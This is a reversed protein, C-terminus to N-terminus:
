NGVKKQLWEWGATAGDKAGRWTSQAAGQAAHIGRGTLDRAGSWVAQAGHEVSHATDVVGDRLSTGTQEVAKWGARATSQAGKGIDNAVMRTGEWAEGATTRAGDWADAATRRAKGVAQQGLELGAQGLAKTGDWAESGVEKTADWAAGAKQKSWDYGEGARQKAGDWTDGVKRKSQDYAQGVSHKAGDWKDGAFNQAKGWQRTAAGGAAGPAESVEKKAIDSWSLNRSTAEDIDQQSQEWVPAARKAQFGAQEVDASQRQGKLVTDLEGYSGAVAKATHYRNEANAAEPWHGDGLATWHEGQANQVAAGGENHENHLIRAVINGGLAGKHASDMVRQKDFQHGGAFRDTLFHEASAELASATERDGAQAAALAMKHFEEYAGLNNDAGTDSRTNFHNINRQALDLFSYGTTTGEADTQTRRRATLKELEGPDTPVFGGPKGGEGIAKTVGDRERHIAQLIRAMEQPDGNQMEDFSKQCNFHERGHSDRDFAGYFDGMMATIDGPEVELGNKLKLKHKMLRKVDDSVTVDKAHGNAQAEAIIEAANSVAHAHEGAEFRHIAAHGGQAPKLQPAPGRMGGEIYHRFLRGTEQAAGEGPDGRRDLAHQGSGGQALAHSWEHAIVEMSHPDAPDDKIQDGLSIHRGMTHAAAGIRSNKGGEGKAVTIDASAPGFCSALLGNVAPNFPGSM